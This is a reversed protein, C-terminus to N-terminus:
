RSAEGVLSAPQATAAQSRALVTLELLLAVLTGALLYKWFDQGSVAAGELRIPEGRAVWRVTSDGLRKRLEVEGLATLDSEDAPGNVALEVQWIRETARSGRDSGVTSSTEAPHHAVVKYTGRQTLQRVSVAFQDAGLADVFLPEHVGGPRMLTFDARRDALAVALLARENTGYNRRPLTRVLMGRLLRDLLVVANTRTLNNWKTMVGTSVFLVDGRGIRREVLFPKGNSFKALVQPQQRRAVTEISEDADPSLRDHGWLLWHPRNSQEATPGDGAASVAQRRRVTEREQDAQLLATLVGPDTEVDVAKFFLPERYLDDLDERTAEAVAFREDSLSEPALFFPQLEASTEDPIRGIPDRKLPLPLIGAGELWGRSNWIGPEFDGGAAILLQGGQEVYDRLLETLMQPTEVGAVVVLRCDELQRRDVQQPALHRIQVLQRVA